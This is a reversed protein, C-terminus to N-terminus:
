SFDIGRSYGKGSVFTLAQQRNGERKYSVHVWGAAPDGKVMNEAILQDFALNDYIYKLLQWNDGTVLEIDAAEGKTHQSTSAGGIARNLDPSRYGSTILIPLGFHDRCPQLVNEALEIAAKQAQIDMTNDIGLRIAIMSKEFEAQTFNKSLKM